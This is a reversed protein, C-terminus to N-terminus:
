GKQERFWNACTELVDLCVDLHEQSHWPEDGPDFIPVYNIAAEVRSLMTKPRTM